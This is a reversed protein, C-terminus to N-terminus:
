FFLTAANQSQLVSNNDKIQWEQFWEILTYLAYDRSQAEKQRSLAM